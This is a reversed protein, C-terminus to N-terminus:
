SGGLTLTIETYVGGPVMEFLMQELEYQSQFGKITQFIINENEQDVIQDFKYSNNEIRRSIFNNFDVGEAEISIELKGPDPVTFTITVDEGFIKKFVFIYAEFTGLEVFAQFIQKFAGKFIEREIANSLPSRGSDFIVEGLPQAEFSGALMDDKHGSLVDLIGSAAAEFKKETDDGKFYQM